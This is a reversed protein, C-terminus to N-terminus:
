SGKQRNVLNAIQFILPFSFIVLWIVTHRPLVRYYYNLGYITLAYLICFFSLGTFVQKDSFRDIHTKINEKLDNKYNGNKSPLFETLLIFNQMIYVASVGLLFYQLGIYIGQSLYKTSEIQQNSFVRIINDIAFAFMIVSSWISLILRATKTLQLYTLANLISFASLLFAITLLSISFWNHNSTFRYDIAWYILSISLLLTIGETLRATVKHKNFIAFALAFFFIFMYPWSEIHNEFNYNREKKGPLFNLLSFLYSGIFIYVVTKWSDSIRFSEFLLGGFLALLSVSFLKRDSISTRYGIYITLALGVICLIIVIPTLDFVASKLKTQNKKNSTM